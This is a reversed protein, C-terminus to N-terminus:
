SLFKYFYYKKFLVNEPQVISYKHLRYAFSISQGTVYHSVLIASPPDTNKEDTRRVDPRDRMVAKKYSSRQGKVMAERRRRRRSRGTKALDRSEVPFLPIANSHENDEIDDSPGDITCM